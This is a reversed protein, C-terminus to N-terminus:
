VAETAWHVSEVGAVDYGTWEPLTRSKPYQTLLVCVCVCVCM